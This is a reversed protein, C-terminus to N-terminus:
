DKIRAQTFIPVVESITIPVIELQAVRSLHEAIEEALGDLSEIVPSNLCAPTTENVKEPRELEASLLEFDQCLVEFGRHTMRMHRIRNIQDPFALELLNVDTM